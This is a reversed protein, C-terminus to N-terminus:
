KETKAAQGSSASPASAQFMLRFVACLGVLTPWYAAMVWGVFPMTAITAPTRLMLMTVIALVIVVGMHIVSGALAAMFLGAVDPTGQRLLAPVLALEAAILGIGCAIWMERAHPNVGAIKCVAFGAAATLTLLLPALALARLATM